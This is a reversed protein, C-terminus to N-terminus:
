TKNAPSLQHLLHSFVEQNTHLHSNSCNSCYVYINYLGYVLSAPFFFCSEASTQHYNQAKGEVIKWYCWGTIAINPSLTNSSCWAFYLSHEGSQSLCCCKSNALVLSYCFWKSSFCKLILHHKSSEGGRNHINAILTASHQQAQTAGGKDVKSM